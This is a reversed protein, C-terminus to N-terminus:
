LREEESAPPPEHDLLRDLTAASQGALWRDRRLAQGALRYDRVSEFVLESGDEIRLGRATAEPVIRDFRATTWPARGIVHDPADYLDEGFEDEADNQDVVVDVNLRGILM